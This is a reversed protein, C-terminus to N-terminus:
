RCMGADGGVLDLRVEGAPANQARYAVAVQTEGRVGVVGVGIFELQQARKRSPNPLNAIFSRVAACSCIILVTVWTSLASSMEAHSNPPHPSSACIPCIVRSWPSM